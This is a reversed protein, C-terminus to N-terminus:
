VGEPFLNLPNPRSRLGGMQPKKRPAPPPNERPVLPAGLLNFGLPDPYLPNAVPVFVPM